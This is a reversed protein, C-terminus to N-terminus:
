WLGNSIRDDMLIAYLYSPAQLHQLPVTDQLPVFELAQEITSKPFSRKTTHLYATNGRVSYTFEKGRIQTFIQGAHTRIREWVLDSDINKM